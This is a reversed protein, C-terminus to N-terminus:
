NQPPKAPQVTPQTPTMREMQHEQMAPDDIKPEISESNYDAIARKVEMQKRAALAADKKAQEEAARRQRLAADVKGQAADYQPSGAPLQPSVTTSTFHGGTKSLTENTIVNVAKKNLRGTAKAARVLPSDQQQQAAPASLITSPTNSNQQDAACLPLALVAISIATAFPKM